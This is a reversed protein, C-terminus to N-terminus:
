TSLWLFTSSMPIKKILTEFWSCFLIGGKDDVGWMIYWPPGLYLWKGCGSKIELQQQWQASVLQPWWFLRRLRCYLFSLHQVCATLVTNLFLLFTANEFVRWFHGNKANEILKQGSLIYIYSAESAINFSVKQAIKLCQPEPDCQYKITLYNFTSLTSRM